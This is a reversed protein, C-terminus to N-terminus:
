EISIRLSYGASARRRAASRPLLVRITYNGNSPLEGSWDTQETAGEVNQMRGDFVVFSVYSSATNLKVSMTQGGRAGVVYDVYKYGSVSGRVMSSSAGRAFRVNVRTQASISFAFLFLLFFLLTYNKM